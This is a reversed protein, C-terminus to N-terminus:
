PRRGMYLRLFANMTRQYQELADAWLGLYAQGAETIFYRRRAPGGGSTEWESECLGEKEM